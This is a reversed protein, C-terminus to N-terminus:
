EVLHGGNFKFVNALLITQPEHACPRKRASMVSDCDCVGYADFPRDERNKAVKAM